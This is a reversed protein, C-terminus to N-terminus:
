RMRPAGRPPRAPRSEFGSGSCARRPPGARTDTPCARCDAPCHRLRPSGLRGLRQRRIPRASSAAPHWGRAVDDVAEDVQGVQRRVCRHVVRVPREELFAKRRPRRDCDPSKAGSPRTSIMIVATWGHVLRDRGLAPRRNANSDGCAQEAVLDPEVAAVLAVRKRVSVSPGNTSHTRTQGSTSNPSPVGRSVSRSTSLRRCM